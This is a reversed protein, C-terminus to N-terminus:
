YVTAMVVIQMLATVAPTVVAIVEHHAQGMAHIPNKALLLAIALAVTLHQHVLAIGAQAIAEVVTMATVLAVHVTTLLDKQATLM